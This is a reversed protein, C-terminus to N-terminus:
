DMGVRKLLLAYVAAEGEEAHRGRLIWELRKGEWFGSELDANCLHYLRHVLRIKWKLGPLFRVLAGLFLGLAFPVLLLSAVILTDSPFRVL